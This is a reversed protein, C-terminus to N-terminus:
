SRMIHQQGVLYLSYSTAAGSTNVVTARVIGSPLAVMEGVPQAATLDRRWFTSAAGLHDLVSLSLTCTGATQQFNLFANGPWVFDATINETAGIAIPNLTTALLINATFLWSFTAPAATAWIRATADGGVVSSTMEVNMWPGLVALSQRITDLGGTMRLDHEDLRETLNQQGFFRLRVRLGGTIAEFLVGISPQHGVFFPGRSQAIPDFTIQEDLYLVDARASVRNWDPYGHATPQTM